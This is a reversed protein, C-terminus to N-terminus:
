QFASKLARIVIFGLGIGLTVYIAPMLADIITQAWTFMKTVDFNVELGQSSAFAYTPFMMCSTGIAACLTAKKGNIKKMKEKINENIKLITEGKKKTLKNKFAFCIFIM